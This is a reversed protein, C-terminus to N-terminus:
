RRQGVLRGLRGRRLVARCRRRREVLPRAPDLPEALGGREPGSDRSPRHGRPLHGGALLLEAPRGRRHGQRALLLHRRGSCRAAHLQHRLSARGEVGRRRGPLLRRRLAPPPVGHRRRGPRLQAQAHQGPHRPRDLRRLPGLPQRGPRAAQHLRDQHRGRPPLAWSVISRASALPQVVAAAFSPDNSIIAEFAVDEPQGTTDIGLQVIPSTAWSAGIADDGEPDEPNISFRVSAPPTTDLFISDCAGLEADDDRPDPCPVQALNQVSFNGAGDEVVLFLHHVGDDDSDLTVGQLSTGGEGIALELPAPDDATRYIRARAVGSVVDDATVHSRDDEAAIAVSVVPSRTYHSGGNKLQGNVLTEANPTIAIKGSPAQRDLVVPLSFWESQAQETDTVRVFLTKAGDCIVEQEGSGPCDSVKFTHEVPDWREDESPVDLPVTRCDAESLEEPDVQFRPNECILLAAARPYLGRVYVTELSTAAGILDGGPTELWVDGVQTTLTMAPVTVTQQAIVTIATQTGRTYGGKTAVLNYVGVPVDAFQYRGSPETFTARRETGSAILGVRVGEHNSRGSLLVSGEISGTAPELTWTGLDEDEGPSLVVNGIENSRYGQASLTVSYSGAILGPISFAGADDSATSATQESGAVSIGSVVVSVGSHVARGQLQVVGRVTSPVPLLVIPEADATQNHEVIADTPAFAAQFATGKQASPRYPGVPLNSFHYAGSSDTLTVHGPAAEVRIGEHNTEGLLKATGRLDGRKLAFFVEPALLDTSEPLALGELPGAVFRDHAFDLRYTGAALSAFLYAGDSGAVATIGTDQYAGAAPDFRRLSVVTGSPDGGDELRVRGRLRASRDVTVSLCQQETLLGAEDRFIACVQRAMADEGEALRHAMPSTLPVFASHADLGPGNAVAVYLQEGERDPRVDFVLRVDLSRATGAGDVSSPDLALAPSGLAPPAKDRWITAPEAASLNGARDRLQLRLTKLGDEDGLEVTQVDVVTAGVSDLPQFPEDSFGAALTYRWADIGALADHATFALTARGAGDAATLYQAGGNLTVSLIAPATQDLVVQGSFVESEIGLSDRFQAFVTRQGEEDALTFDVPTSFERYDTDWRPDGFTPDESLRMAELLEVFPLLVASVERSNTFRVPLGDREVKVIAAAPYLRLTPATQRQYERVEIGEDTYAPAYNAKEARLRYSGAALEPVHFSGDASAITIISEAGPMKLPVLTIATGAPNLGDDLVVSGSLAGRAVALRLLGVDRQEGPALRIDNVSVDRHGASSALLNYHGPPVELVFSGDELSETGRPVPAEGSAERLVIEVGARQTSAELEVSGIVKAKAQVSAPAKEDFPNTRAPETSCSALAFFALAGLCTRAHHM